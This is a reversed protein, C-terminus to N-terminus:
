LLNTYIYDSTKANKKELLLRCVLHGRSQLESTHEESRSEEAEEWNALLLASVFQSSASSDVEIEGGRVAGTGHVVVPLYGPVNSEGASGASARGQDGSSTVSVGLDALARLVPGM